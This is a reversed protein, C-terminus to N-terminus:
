KQNPKLKKNTYTNMNKGGHTGHTQTHTRTKGSHTKFILNLNDPKHWLHGEQWAM